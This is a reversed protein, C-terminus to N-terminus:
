VWLAASGHARIVIDSDGDCRLSAPCTDCTTHMKLMNRMARMENIFPDSPCQKAGRAYATHRKDIYGDHPRVLFTGWGAQKAEWRDIYSDCSAQLVGRFPKAIPMRWQHTYGTHGLEYRLMDGWIPFPVAVPDGYTGMRLKKGAVLQITAAVTSSVIPINGKQFSEWVAATGKGINVYCTRVDKVKATRTHRKRRKRHTCNGCICGDLLQDIAVQPHVDRMIIYTQIMDGTKINWDENNTQCNSMVCIIRSRRDLQSVGDYICYSNYKPKMHKGNHVNTFLAPNADLGFKALYQQATM